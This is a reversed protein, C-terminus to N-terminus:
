PRPASQVASTVASLLPFSPLLLSLTTLLNKSGDFDSGTGKVALSSLQALCISFTREGEAITNILSQGELNRM